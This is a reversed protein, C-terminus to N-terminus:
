QAQQTAMQLEGREQRLREAELERQMDPLSMVRIVGGEWKYFLGATLLVSKFLDNWPEDSFHMQVTQTVGEGIVISQDAVKALSRLVVPVPTEETLAFHQIVMTPLKRDAEEDATITAPITAEQMGVPTGIKGGAQSPARRAGQKSPLSGHIFKHQKLERDLTGFDAELQERREAEEFHARRLADRERKLAQIETELAARSTVLKQNATELEANEKQAELLANVVKRAMSPTDTAAYIERGEAIMGGPMSLMMLWCWAVFHKLSRRDVVWHM